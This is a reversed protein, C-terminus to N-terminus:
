TYVIAPNQEVAAQHRVTSCFGAITCLQFIQGNISKKMLLNQDYDGTFIFSEIETVNGNFMPTVSFFRIIQTSYCFDISFISLLSLIM